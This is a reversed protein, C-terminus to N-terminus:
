MCIASMQRVVSAISPMASSQSLSVDACRVGPDRSPRFDQSFSAKWSMMEASRANKM